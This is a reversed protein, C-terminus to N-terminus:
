ERTVSIGVGRRCSRKRLDRNETADGQCSGAAFERAEARVRRSSGPRLAFGGCAGAGRCSVAALKPAEAGSRRPSNRGLVCGVPGRGNRASVTVGRVGAEVNGCTVPKLYAASAGYRCSGGVAPGMRAAYPCGPGGRGPVAWSIVIRPSSRSRTPSATSAGDVLDRNVVWIVIEDADCSPVTSSIM